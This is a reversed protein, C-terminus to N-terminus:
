SYVDKLQQIEALKGHKTKLYMRYLERVGIITKRQLSLSTLMHGSHQSTKARNWRVTVHRLREEILEFQETASALQNCVELEMDDLLDLNFQCTNYQAMIYTLHTVDPIQIHYSSSISSLRDKICLLRTLSVIAHTHCLLSARTVLYSAHALLHTDFLFFNMWFLNYNIVFYFTFMTFVLILCHTPTSHRIFVSDAKLVINNIIYYGTDFKAVYNSLYNCLM